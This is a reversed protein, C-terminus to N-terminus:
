FIPFIRAHTIGGENAMMSNRLIISEMMYYLFGQMDWGRYAHFQSMRLPFIFAKYDFDLKFVHTISRILDNDYPISLHVLLTSFDLQLFPYSMAECNSGGFM